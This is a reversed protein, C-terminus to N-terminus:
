LSTPLGSSALIAGCTRKILKNLIEVNGNLGSSYGGTTQLTIGANFLLKCFDSSNALSGDEDVRFQLIHIGQNELYKIIFRLLELPMQKTTCPFCWVKRTNACKLCIISTHGRISVEGLFCWDAHIQQGPGLLTYDSPPNRPHHVAKTALCIPCDDHMKPLKSPLGAILERRALEEVRDNHFHGCKQHILHPSISKARAM